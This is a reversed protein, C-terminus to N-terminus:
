LGADLESPLSISAIELYYAGRQSNYEEDSDVEVAGDDPREDEEVEALAEM